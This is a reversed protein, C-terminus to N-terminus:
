GGSLFKSVVNVFEDPKEFEPNHGCDDILVLQSGKISSNYLEACSLPMVTDDKGWVILTPLNKLRSLLQPMTYYYMYPKWALRAAGERAEEWEETQEPTPEEPSLIAYEPTSAPDKICEEMYEKAVVLFMDFIEGEPPKIGAAGVLTLSKFQSPSMTAMEAAIWGGLSFGIVDIQGLGLDDLAELYWGAMDRMNFIWESRATVGFGPILPIYLTHNQALAEHYQMWGPHGIEGHIILLPDGQGGKILHLSAGAAEVVEETWTVTSSTM